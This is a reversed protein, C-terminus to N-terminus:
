GLIVSGAVGHMIGPTGLGRSSNWTGHHFELNHRHVGVILNNHAFAHMAGDSAITRVPIQETWTNSQVDYVFTRGGGTSWRSAVLYLKADVVIGCTGCRRRPLPAGLRWTRTTFDYIQLTSLLHTDAGCGGAIFLENGIVGSAAMCCAHPMRPLDEWSGTAENFARLSNLYSGLGGVGGAIYLLGAHWEICHNSLGLPLTAFRSWRRSSCNVALVDSFKDLGHYRATSVFLRAGGDTTSARAELKGRERDISAVVIRPKGPFRIELPGEDDSHAVLIIRREAFGYERRLRLFQPGRIVARFARCATATADQDDLAVGLLVRQLVDDPLATFFSTTAM